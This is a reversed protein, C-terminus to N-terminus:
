GSLDMEAKMFAIIQPLVKDATEIYTGDQGWVDAHKTRMDEKHLRAQNPQMTTGFMAKFVDGARMPETALNAAPLQNRVARQCDSWIRSMPYFQFQTDPNTFGFASQQADVLAHELARKDASQGLMTRDM